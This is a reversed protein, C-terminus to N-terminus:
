TNKREQEKGQIGFRKWMTSKDLALPEIIATSLYLMVKAQIRISLQRVYKRSGKAATKPPLKYINAYLWDSSNFYGQVV